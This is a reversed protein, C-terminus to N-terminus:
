EVLHETGMRMGSDVEDVKKGKVEERKRGASGMRRTLDQDGIAMVDSGSCRRRFVGCGTAEYRSFWDIVETGSAGIGSGEINTAELMIGAWRCQKDSVSAKYFRNV